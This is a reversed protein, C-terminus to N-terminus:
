PKAIMIARKPIAAIDRIHGLRLRMSEAQGLASRAKELAKAASGALEAANGEEEEREALRSALDDIAASMSAMAAAMSEVAASVSSAESMCREISKRMADLEGSSEQKGATELMEAQSSENFGDTVKAITTAELSGGSQPGDIVALSRRQDEPLFNWESDFIKRLRSKFEMNQPYPDEMQAYAIWSKGDRDRQNKGYAEPNDIAALRLLFEAGGEKQSKFAMASALVEPKALIEMFPTRRNTDSPLTQRPNSSEAGPLLLGAIEWAPGHDQGSDSLAMEMPSMFGLEAFDWGTAGKELLAKVCPASRAGVAAHMPSAGVAFFASLSKGVMPKPPTPSAGARLLIATSQEDSRMCALWLARLLLGQETGEAVVAVGDSWGVLVCKSAPTKIHAGGFVPIREGCARSLNTMPAVHELGALWRQEIIAGIATMGGRAEKTWAAPAGKASLGGLWSREAAAQAAQISKDLAQLNKAEIANFINDILIKKANKVVSAGPQELCKVMGSDSSGSFSFALPRPRPRMAQRRLCTLSVQKNILRSCSVQRKRPPAFGMAGEGRERFQKEAACSSNQRYHVAQRLRAEIEGRLPERLGNRWIGEPRIPERGAMLVPHQRHEATATRVAGRSALNIDKLVIFSARAALKM